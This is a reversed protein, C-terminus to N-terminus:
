NVKTYDYNLNLDKFFVIKGRGSLIYQGFCIVTSGDFRVLKFEVLFVPWENCTVNISRYNSLVITRNLFFYNPCQLRSLRSLFKIKRQRYNSSMKESLDWPIRVCDMAGVCDMFDSLNNEILYINRM